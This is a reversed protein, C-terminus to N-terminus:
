DGRRRALRGLDVRRALRRAARRLQRRPSGARQGVPAVRPLPSPHPPRRPADALAFAELYRRDDFDGREVTSPAFRLRVVTAPSASGALQYRGVLRVAPADGGAAAPTQQIVRMIRMVGF